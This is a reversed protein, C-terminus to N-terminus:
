EILVGCYHCNAADTKRPAGCNQCDVRRSPAPAPAVGLGAGLGGLGAGLDKAMAELEAAMSSFSAMEAEIDAMGADGAGRVFDVGGRPKDREARVRAVDEPSLTVSVQSLGRFTIGLGGWDGTQAFLEATLAAGFEPSQVFLLDDRATVVSDVAVQVTSFLLGGIDQYRAMEPDELEVEYVAHFAAGRVCALTPPDYLSDLPASLTGRIVKESM